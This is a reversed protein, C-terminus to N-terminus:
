HPRLRLHRQNDEALYRLCWRLDEKTEDLLNHPNRIKTAPPTSGMAEVNQYRAPGQRAALPLLDRGAPLVFSVGRSRLRFSM